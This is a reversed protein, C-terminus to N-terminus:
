GHKWVTQFAVVAKRFRAEDATDDGKSKASILEARMKEFHGDVKEGFMKNPARQVTVGSAEALMKKALAQMDKITDNVYGNVKRRPLQMLDYLAKNDAKLRGFKAPTEALLFQVSLQVKDGKHAKFAKDDVPVYAEGQKIYGQDIEPHNETYRLQLGKGLDTRTADSCETAFNKDNGLVIIVTDRQTQKAGGFDYGAKQLINM